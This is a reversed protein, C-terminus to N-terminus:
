WGYSGKLGDDSTKDSTRHPKGVVDAKESKYSSGGTRYQYYHQNNSNNKATCDTSGPKYSPMVQHSPITTKNSSDMTSYDITRQASQLYTGQVKLDM